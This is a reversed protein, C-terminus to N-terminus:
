WFGSQFALSSMQFSNYERSSVLRHRVRNGSVETVLLGVDTFFETSTRKRVFEHPRANRIAKRTSLETETPTNV